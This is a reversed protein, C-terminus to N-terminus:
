KGGVNALIEIGVTISDKVLRKLYQKLQADDMEDIKLLVKDSGGANYEAEALQKVKGKVTPNDRWDYTDVSLHDLKDRVKELDPLLISFEGLFDRKFAEDRMEEDVLNDFLTTSELFELAVRIESDTGWNRNLTEFAKKAKEYEAESVCCLTPTRYRSSWERPNKTGTKDKWLRFLQSKLQNKRFEEAAEKVKINCDTKPLDFLGTQLKSKVEAIDSDSLDELYPEYVEAFARRDNNLLERLEAGHAMLETHFAKLQEPLIDEQKCIKLLTDLVKALAPYKARLAECPIGIFKLRERWEKDAETLSHTAANLITNSEKVV